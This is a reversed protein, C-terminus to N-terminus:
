NHDRTTHVGPFHRASIHRESFRQPAKATKEQRATKLTKTTQTVSLIRLFLKQRKSILNVVGDVLVRVRRIDGPGVLALVLGDNFEVSTLTGLEFGPWLWHTTLRVGLGAGRSIVISIRLGQIANGLAWQLM